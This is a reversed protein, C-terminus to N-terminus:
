YKILSYILLEGNIKMLLIYVTKYSSSLYIQQFMTTEEIVYINLNVSHEDVESERDSTNVKHEQFFTSTYIANGITPCKQVLFTTGQEIDENILFFLEANPNPPYSYSPYVLGPNTVYLVVEKQTYYITYHENSVFDNPTTYYNPIYKKSKYQIMYQIDQKVSLFVHYLLRKKMEESPVILFQKDQVFSINGLKLSRNKNDYTHGEKVLIIKSFDNVYDQLNANFEDNTEADLLKDLPQKFSFLYCAYAMLMNAIRLYSNYQQLFSQEALSLPVIYENKDLDYVSTTIDNTDSYEDVYIFGQKQDINFCYGVLLIEKNPNAYVMKKIGRINVEKNFFKKILTNSHRTVGHNGNYKTDGKIFQQVNLPAIPTIYV